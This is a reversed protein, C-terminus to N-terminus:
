FQLRVDSELEYYDDPTGYAKRSDRLNYEYEKWSNRGPPGAPPAADTNPRQNMKQEFRCLQASLASIHQSLKELESNVPASGGGAGAAATRQLQEIQPGYASGLLSEVQHGTAASMAVSIQSLQQLQESCQALQDLIPLRSPPVKPVSPAAEKWPNEPHTNASGQVYQVFM